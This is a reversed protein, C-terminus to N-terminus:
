WKHIKSRQMLNKEYIQIYIKGPIKVDTRWQWNKELSKRTLTSYRAQKIQMETQWIVKTWNQLSYTKLRSKTNTLLITMKWWRKAKNRDSIEATSFRSGLHNTQFITNISPDYSYYCWAVSRFVEEEVSWYDM